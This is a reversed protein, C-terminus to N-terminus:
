REKRIKERQLASLHEGKRRLKEKGGMVLEVGKGGPELIIV